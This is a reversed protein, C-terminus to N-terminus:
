LAHKIQCLLMWSPVKKKFVWEARLGGTGESTKEEKVGVDTVQGKGGVREGSEM